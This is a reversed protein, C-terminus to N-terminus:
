EAEPEASAKGNGGARAGRPGGADASEGPTGLDESEGPTGSDGAAELEGLEGMEELLKLTRLAEEEDVLSIAFGAHVVAYDGVQAQDAVFALCVERRAGGFDVTGMPLGEDERIEVIRGPIGLCM